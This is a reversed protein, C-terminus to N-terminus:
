SAADSLAVDLRRGSNVMLVTGSGLLM